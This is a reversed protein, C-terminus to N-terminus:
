REAVEGLLFRRRLVLEGMSGSDDVLMVTDFLALKALDMAIEMPINWQAAIRPLAGSQAIRAALQELSGPPYFAQIKQANPNAISLTLVAVTSVAWPKSLSPMPQDLGSRFLQRVQDMVAQQLIQTIMQQNGGPGGAGGGQQQQQQGPAGYGAPPQGYGTHELHRTLMLTVTEFLFSDTGRFRTPLLM